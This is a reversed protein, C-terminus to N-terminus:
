PTEAQSYYLACRPLSKKLTEISTPKVHSQEAYLVGLDSLNHLPSLDTVQTRGIDLWHLKPLKALPGINDIKTGRITLREIQWTNSEAIRVFKALDANTLPKADFNVGTVESTKAMEPDSPYPIPGRSEYIRYAHDFLIKGGM